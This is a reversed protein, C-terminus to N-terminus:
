EQARVHKKVTIPHYIGASVTADNAVIMCDIGHIRGIGTIIGGAPVSLTVDKGTKENYETYLNHGALPSLELFPSGPDLIHTIRDRVMLKGRELHKSIARQPGGIRISDLTQNLDTLLQHM